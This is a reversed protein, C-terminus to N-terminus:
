RRNISVQGYDLYRHDDMQQLQMYQAQCNETQLIAQLYSQAEHPNTGQLRYHELQGTIELSPSPDQQNAPARFQKSVPTVWNSPPTISPPCRSKPLAAPIESESAFLM